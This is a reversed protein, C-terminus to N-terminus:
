ENLLFAIYTYVKNKYNMCADVTNESYWTVSNGSWTVVSRSNTDDRSYGWTCGQILFLRCNPHEDRNQVIVMLPKKAFTLTRKVTAGYEGTGTYQGMEMSCNGASAMAATIAAQRAEAEARIAADIKANDANFDEMLIRAPKEWQSLGCTETQNM